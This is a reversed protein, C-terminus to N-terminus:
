GKKHAREKSRLDATAVDAKERGTVEAYGVGDGGRGRGVAWPRSYSVWHASDFVARTM